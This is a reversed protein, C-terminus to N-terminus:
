DSYNHEEEAQKTLVELNSTIYDLVKGSCWGQEYIYLLYKAPVDIMRTGKYKGFPMIDSDEM